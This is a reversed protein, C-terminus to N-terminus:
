RVSPPGYPLVKVNAVLRSGGSDPSDYHLMGFCADCMFCPNSVALPDDFTVRTADRRTCVGCKRVKHLSRHPLLQLPYDAPDAVTGRGSRLRQRVDKVQVLHECCGGVHCYVATPRSSVRLAPIDALRTGRLSVVRPTGLSPPEGQGAAALAPCLVVGRSVDTGDLHNPVFGRTRCFNLISSVAAPPPLADLPPAHRAVGTAATAVRRVGAGEGLSDAAAMAEDDDDDEEDGEGDVRAEEQRRRRLQQQMPRLSRQELGEGVEEADQEEEETAVYFTGEIFLFAHRAPHPGAAASAVHVAQRSCRRAHSSCCAVSVLEHTQVHLCM